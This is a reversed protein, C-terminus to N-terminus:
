MLVEWKHNSGFCCFTEHSSHAGPAHLGQRLMICEPAKMSGHLFAFGMSSSNCAVGIEVDIRQPRQKDDGSGDATQQSASQQGQSLEDGASSCDKDVCSQLKRQQTM